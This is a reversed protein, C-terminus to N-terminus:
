FESLTLKTRHPVSAATGDASTGRMYHRQWDGRAVVGVALGTNFADRSSSWARYHSALEADDDLPRLQAGLAEVDTLRVPSVQCIPEGAKFFVPEKARTFQYNMTFTATAWDTEVIGELAQIGDRPWNAPGRVHLEVGPPTRFLYPISWTLIGHGFHSSAPYPPEGSWRLLLDGLGSQGPDPVQDDCCPKPPQPVWTAMLDHTNLVWWGLQNAILMPLCRNAFGDSTAVMWARKAAAPVLPM